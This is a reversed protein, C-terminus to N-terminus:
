RITYYAKELEKVIKEWSYKEEVLKRANITLKNRLDKRELLEVAAKALEEPKERILFEKGDQGEIGESGAATTVVAVGSAMAELIKFKTGSGARIPAALVDAQYYAERIDEVKDDIFVDKDALNKIKRTPNRGIILLKANEVEKKILPFVKKILVLVADQNQIYKFNGVFLIKQEKNDTRQKKFQFYELDIGNPVLYCKKGIVKEIEEANEKSSALVADAKKWSKEEYQKTRGAEFQFLAKLILPQQRAHEMFVRWEINETGLVQKVPYKDILHSTYFSEFHVIDYAGNELEKKLENNLNQHYYHAIHATLNPHLLAAAIHNFSFVLMRQFVRIKQCYKKIETLYRLQIKRRYYSFLTIKHKRSLQKILHYARIKGGADLPYPIDYTLFLIKM